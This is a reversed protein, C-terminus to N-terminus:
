ELGSSLWDLSIHLEKSLQIIHTLTPDKRGHEWLFISNVALGTRAALEKQSLGARKRAAILRRGVSELVVARQDANM